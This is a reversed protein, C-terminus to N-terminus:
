SALEIKTQFEGCWGATQMQPFLVLPGQPGAIVGPPFRRCIIQKMNTRDTMGFKCSGCSQNPPNM